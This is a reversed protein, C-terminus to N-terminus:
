QWEGTQLSDVYKIAVGSLVAATYTEPEDDFLLETVIEGSERKATTKRIKIVADAGLRQARKRLKELLIASDEYESGEAEIMAIQKYHRTPEHDDFFVEVFRNHPRYIYAENRSIEFDTSYGYTCGGIVLLCSGLFLQQRFLFGM